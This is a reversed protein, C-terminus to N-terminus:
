FRTIGYNLSVAGASLIVEKNAALIYEMGASNVVVGTAKKDKDFMIRKAMTSPFAILGSGNFAQRLYSTEASSRTASRPDITQFDYQSGMLKGSNFDEADAIGKERFAKQYWSSMPAATNPFSIQVPGQFMPPGDPRLADNRWSASANAARLKMNPETLTVSREFFPRFNDFTYSQDGVQDAWM